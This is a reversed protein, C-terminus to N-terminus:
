HLKLAVLNNKVLYKDLKVMEDIKFKNFITTYTNLTISIDKHGLLKQLVSERMGSEICRTAYTHRLMHFNVDYGKNINQNKCIRKFVINLTAPALLKKNPQCFLLNHDNVIINSIANKLINEVLTTIPIDRISNYTKTTEGIIVRDDIDRTLTRKIHIIKNKLDIDDLKLGLIEGIRMGTFIAILFINRYYENQISKIFKKQEDITFAEVKKSQKKSKPKVIDILPNKYIYDKSIAKKITMNILEYVKGITSNSYKDILSNFFNKLNYETLKQVSIIELESTEIIKVTDMTRNYTRDTILNSNHKDDVISKMLDILRIDNKEIYINSQIESLAKNLKDKVETRTKGYVSKRNIKGNSKTGNTFQAVWKKLTESYYITGEGNGRKGM